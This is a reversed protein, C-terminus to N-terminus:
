KGWFAGDVTRLEDIISKATAGIGSNQFLMSQVESQMLNMVKVGNGVLSMTMGSELISYTYIINVPAVPTSFARITNTSQDLTWEGASRPIGSIQTAFTIDDTFYVTGSVVTGAIEQGYKYYGLRFSSTPPVQEDYETVYSSQQELLIAPLEAMAATTTATIDLIDNLGSVVKGITPLIWFGDQDVDVIDVKQLGETGAGSVRIFEPEVDLRLSGSSAVSILEQHGLNLERAIADTLGNITANAPRTYVSAMRVKFNAISEGDLRSLSAYYGHDDMKTLINRGTGTIPLKILAGAITYSTRSAM